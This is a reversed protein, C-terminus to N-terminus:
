LDIPDGDHEDYAMDEPGDRGAAVAAAALALLAWGAGEAFGHAGTAVGAAFTAVLLAAGLCLLYVFTRTRRGAAIRVGVAATGTIVGALFLLLVHTATM